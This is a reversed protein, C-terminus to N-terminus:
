EYFLDVAALKQDIARNISTFVTNELM